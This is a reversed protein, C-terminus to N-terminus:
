IARLVQSLDSPHRQISDVFFCSELTAQSLFSFPSRHVIVIHHLNEFAKTLYSQSARVRSWLPLNWPLIWGRERYGFAFLDFVPTTAISCITVSCSSRGSIWGLNSMMCTAFWRGLGPANVRRDSSQWARV